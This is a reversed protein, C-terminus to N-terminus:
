INKFTKRDAIEKIRSWKNKRGTYDLEPYLLKVINMVSEGNDYRERIMIVDKNSYVARGNSEGSLGKYSGAKVSHNINEIHTIWELNDINNNKRNFDKHNIEVSIDSKPKEMFETAVLKHVTITKQKLEKNLKVTLYGDKNKTLTKYKEGYNMVRGDSRIIIRTMSKVRGLNSVQYYGKYGSIDKWEELM